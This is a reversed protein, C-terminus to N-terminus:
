SATPEVGAVGVMFSVTTNHHITHNIVGSLLFQSNKTTVTLRNKVLFLLLFLPIQWATFEAKKSIYQSSHELIRITM